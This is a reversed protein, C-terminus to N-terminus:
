SCSEIKVGGEHNMLNNYYTQVNEENDNDKNDDDKDTKPPIYDPHKPDSTTNRRAKQAYTEKAEGSLKKTVLTYKRGRKPKPVDTGTGVNFTMNDDTQKASPEHTNRDDEDGAEWRKIKEKRVAWKKHRDAIDKREKEKEKLQAELAKGAEKAKQIAVSRGIAAHDYAEREATNMDEIKRRHAAADTRLFSDMVSQSNDVAKWKGKEVTRAAAIRSTWSKTGSGAIKEIPRREALAQKSRARDDRDVLTHRYGQPPIRLSGSNDATASIIPALNSTVGIRPAPAFGFGSSSRYITKPLENTAKKIEIRTNNFFAESRYEHKNYEEAQLKDALQADYAVQESDNNDGRVTMSGEDSEDDPTDEDSSTSVDTDVM